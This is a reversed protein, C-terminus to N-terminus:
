QVISLNITGEFQEGTSMNTIKVSVVYTQGNVGGQVAFAVKKTMSVLAPMPSAAIILATSDAKSTLNRATVSTLTITSTGVAPAFDVSCDFVEYPTKTIALVDEAHTVFVYNSGIILDVIYPSAVCFLFLLTVFLPCILRKM